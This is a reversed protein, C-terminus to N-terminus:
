ELRGKRSMAESYAAITAGTMAETTFQRAIQARAQAGMARRGEAGIDIM